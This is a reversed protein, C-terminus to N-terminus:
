ARRNRWHLAQAGTVAVAAGLVGMATMGMTPLAVLPTSTVPTESSWVPGPPADGGFFLTGDSGGSRADAVGSGQGEDLHYLALTFGDPSLAATPVSFAAAYRLTSSLHVEDLWGTFNIGQFGHKEAGFVLYPDSNECSSSGAGGDPNCFNGPVAGSPYSMDGTPGGSVPGEADLLGDVWIRLRGDSAQREVAVHHWADDRLDTQGCLTYGVFSDSAGFAVRGDLLAIGFARGQGYRDRDILINGNVWALGFGCTQAGNQNEDTPSRLFFEITFDGAGINAVAPPAVLIKVRDPFVFDDGPSGGHGYFRLSSAAGPAAPAL